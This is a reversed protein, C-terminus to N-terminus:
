RVREAALTAELRKALAPGEDGLARGDLSALPRAGRVANLAVVGRARFLAAASLDRQRVEPVRELVVELTVGAVAGRELPPTCVADADFLAVVNSRSGEVLRGRADFLLAEEAGAKRAADTALAMALRSTLKHGGAVIAGPHPFPATVATWVPADPGLGRPVGTVHLAGDGDRSLQLRVAGDGGDFAARALADLAGRLSEADVPPLGLAGAGRALRRLHRDVLEPRGKRIRVSTYCGRAEAFASDDARM